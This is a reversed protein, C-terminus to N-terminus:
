GASADKAKKPAAKKPAVAPAAASETKEKFSEIIEIMDEPKRAPLGEIKTISNAKPNILIITPFARVGFEEALKAHKEAQEKTTPNGSRDFDALVVKMKEKAYKGFKESDLIFKHFMKCPPCWQSGTFELMVIKGEKKAADMAKEFDTEIETKLKEAGSEKAASTAAFCPLAFAAAAALIAISFKRMINQKINIRKGIIPATSTFQSLKQKPLNSKTTKIRNKSSHEDSM